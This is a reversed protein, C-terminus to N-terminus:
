HSEDATVGERALLGKLRKLAYSLRSKITGAPVGGVLAIENVSLDHYFRLVLAERHEPTLQHLARAVAERDAAAMLDADINPSHPASVTLEMVDEIGTREHRHAASRLHDRALNGAITYAWARFQDPPRGRHTILRTFAEQLLEEAITGQGTLRYLFRFLAAHYREVLAEFASVDGRLVRGYLAEDSEAREFESLRAV